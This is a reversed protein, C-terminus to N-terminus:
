PRRGIAAYLDALPVIRGHLPLIRDVQLNLREINQALNVQNANPVAPPPVGPPGPTFADAEILLHERPLHVMMFGQAHASDEIMFIDITREGDSLSRQGNVGQVVAKRGSRTLADPKIANPHALVREFWPRAQESVILTAGQAAAARLGGAHDFHHHSNIVYRLEKGPVLRRAEALVAQARGDYLPSEVLVLYDKMEVLVSNHSGGGLFWVGPAAAQAVVRETAQLVTEPVATDETGNVQVQTVQLDLVPFGGQNQRIRTPFKVSGFERYDSYVTTSPMDGLVPNPLVSDVREVLGQADLYLTASFQDPMSFSVATVGAEVRMSARNRLAAEVVGHPTTWLDHIRSDLAVPAAVASTGALNWAYPGRLLGSTRQVGQGMLPLAGGGTAEARSRVVDERLAAHGYDVFRSFSSIETRPWAMGPLWAQGLTAGTGHGGYRLTQLSEGGGMAKRAALLPSLAPDAPPSACAALLGALVLGGVGGWTGRQM